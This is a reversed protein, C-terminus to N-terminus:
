PSQPASTACSAPATWPGIKIELFKNGSAVILRSFEVETGQVDAHRSEILPITLYSTPCDSYWLVDHSDLDVVYFGPKDFPTVSRNPPDVLFSLGLILVFVAVVYLGLFKLERM